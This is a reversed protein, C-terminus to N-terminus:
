EGRHCSPELLSYRELTLARFPYSPSTSFTPGIRARKRVVPSINEAGMPDKTLISSLQINLTLFKFDKILNKQVVGGITNWGKRRSPM